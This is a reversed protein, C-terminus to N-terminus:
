PRHLAVEVVTPRSEDADVREITRTQFGRAEVELAYPGGHPVRFRVDSAAIEGEWVGSAAEGPALSRWSVRIPWARAPERKVDDVLRVEIMRAGSLVIRQQEAGARVGGYRIGDPEYAGEIPTSAAAIEYEGDGIHDFAFLGDARTDCTHVCFGHQGATVHVEAIPRGDVGVVVGHIRGGVGLVVDGLDVDGREASLDARVVPARGSAFAFVNRGARTLGALEARGDTGTQVHGAYDDVFGLLANAIPRGSEDVCRARVTVAAPLRFELPVRL